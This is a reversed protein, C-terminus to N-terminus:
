HGCAEVTLISDESGYSFHHGVEGV